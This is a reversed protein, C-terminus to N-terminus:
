SDRAETPRTDRKHWSGCNCEAATCRVYDDAVLIYSAAREANLSDAYEGQLENLRQEVGAVHALLAARAANLIEYREAIVRNSEHALANDHQITAVELAEVLARATDTPNPVPAETKAFSIDGCM